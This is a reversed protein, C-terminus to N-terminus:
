VIQEFIFKQVTKLTNIKNKLYVQIKKQAHIKNHNKQIQQQYNIKFYIQWERAQHPMCDLWIIIYVLPNCQQLINIICKM